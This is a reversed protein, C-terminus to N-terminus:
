FCICRQLMKLYVNRKNLIVDSLMCRHACANVPRAAGQSRESPVAAHLVNRRDAGSSSLKGESKGYVHRAIEMELLSIALYFSSAADEGDRPFCALEPDMDMLLDVCAVKNKPARIAQHL